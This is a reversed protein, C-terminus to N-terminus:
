ISQQENRILWGLWVRISENSLDYEAAFADGEEHYLYGRREPSDPIILRIMRAGQNWDFLIGGDGDPAISPSPFPNPVDYLNAILRSATVSAHSTPRFDEDSTNLEAIEDLMRATQLSATRRPSKERRILGKADSKSTLKYTEVPEAAITSAAARPPEERSERRNEDAMRGGIVLRASALM